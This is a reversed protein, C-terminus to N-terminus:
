RRNGNGSTGSREADWSYPDASLTGQKCQRAFEEFSMRWKREFGSVREKLVDSKLQVYELLAKWLATELDATQAAKTLFEGLRPSVTAM